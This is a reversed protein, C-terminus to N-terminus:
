QKNKAHVLCNLSTFQRISGLALVSKFVKPKSIIALFDKQAVRRDCIKAPLNRAGSTTLSICTGPSVGVFVNRHQLQDEIILPQDLAESFYLIEALRVVIIAVPRKPCICFSSRFFKAREALRDQSLEPSM